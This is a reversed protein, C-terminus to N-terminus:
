RAFNSSFCIKEGHVLTRPLTMLHLIPQRRRRSQNPFGFEIPLMIEMVLRLDAPVPASYEQSKLESNARLQEAANWLRKELAPSDANKKRHPSGTCSPPPM